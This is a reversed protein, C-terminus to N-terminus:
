TEARRRRSLNIAIQFEVNLHVRNAAAVPARREIDGAGRNFNATELFSNIRSARPYPAASL